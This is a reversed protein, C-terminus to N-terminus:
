AVGRDCHDFPDTANVLLESLVFFSFKWGTSPSSTSVFIRPKASVLQFKM